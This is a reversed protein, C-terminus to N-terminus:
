KTTKADGIEKQILEFLYNAASYPSLNKKWLGDKIVKKYEQTVPEIVKDWLVMNLRDLVEWYEQEERRKHFSGTKKAHELYRLISTIIDKVGDGTMSNTKLVPPKWSNASNVKGNVNFSIWTRLEQVALNAEILDAKNVVVIDGIEILGAKSAQIIDGAGPILVVLAVDAIKQIDIDLQGAGVTEVIIVQYGVADMLRIADRTSRAVGGTQGRTAVSRVFVEPDNEFSGMRIRDGMIAGKTFTSSPDIALVGVRKKMKRFQLILQSILSSKGAGPIGSVGVVNAERDLRYVKSLIEVAKSPENEIITLLKGLARRDGGKAM